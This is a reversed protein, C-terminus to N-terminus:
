PTDSEQARAVAADLQSQPIKRRGRAISKVLGIVFVVLLGAGIVATGINEWDARVRVLLEGTSPAVYGNLAVVQIMTEVDGNALGEVPVDVRTTQRPPLVVPETTQTRLQPTRATVQVTVTAPRDTTNEVRVPVTTREGTVLLVPSGQEPAIGDITADVEDTAQGTCEPFNPADAWTASTCSLIMRDLDQRALGPESFVAAFAEAREHAEALHGLGDASLGAQRTPNVLPARAVPQSELLSSLSRHELWGASRTAEAILRWSEDAGTRPMMVLLHRPDYPRESTIASSEAVYESVASARAPQAAADAVADSLGTDVVLSDALPGVGAGGVPSLGITSRADSTYGTLAPQQLDSLIVTDTGGDVIEDLNEATVTGSVPWVFDTRADPLLERVVAIEDSARDALGALGAERLALLDADAWPLAIVERDAALETFGAFWDRLAPTPDEGTEPEEILEEPDTPADTGSPLSSTPAPSEAESDRLAMEVSVLLRPDVALAIAADVEAAALLRSLEGNAASQELKEPSILGTPSFGPLTVPMIMTIGTPEFDPEPYWTTFATATDATPGAGTQGHLRVAVGRAGWSSLPNQTGLGLQDAPVEFRFDSTSGPAVTEPLEPTVVAQDGASGTDTGSGAGGAGTDAGGPSDAGSGSGDQGATASTALLRHSSVDTKWANIEARSDLRDTSMLLELRPRTLESGGPNRLRGAVQLTGDPDLWTTVEQLGLHPGSPEAAPANPAPSAFAHAPLAHLGGGALMLLVATLLIFLLRRLPAPQHRIGALSM